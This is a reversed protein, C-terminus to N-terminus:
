TTAGTGGASEPHDVLWLTIATCLSENTTDDHIDGVWRGLTQRENGRATLSTYVTLPHPRAALWAVVFERAAKGGPTALEAAFVGLLRLHIIHCEDVGLDIHATLTDGDHVDTVSLVRYSRFSM